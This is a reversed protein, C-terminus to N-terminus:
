LDPRKVFWLPIKINLFSPALNIDWFRYGLDM